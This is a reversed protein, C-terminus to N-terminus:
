EQKVFSIQDLKTLGMTINVMQEAMYEPSYKMGSNIYYELLGLHANIVYNVLVDLSINGGIRSMVPSLLQTYWNIGQKLLLDRFRATGNVGLLLRFEDYHDHVHTYWKRYRRYALAKNRLMEQPAGETEVAKVLGYAVERMVQQYFIDQSPYNAYFTSRNVMAKECLEKVTIQYINKEEMLAFLAFKLYDKSSLKGTFRTKEMHINGGVWEYHNM